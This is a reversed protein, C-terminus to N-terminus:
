KGSSLFDVVVTQVNGSTKDRAQVHIETHTIDCVLEIERDLGCGGMDVTVEGLKHVDKDTTSRVDKQFTAYVPFTATKQDKERASFTMVFVENTCIEEGRKVFAHFSNLKEDSEKFHPCHLVADFNGTGYTADAKRKLAISPDYHSVTVGLTVALEPEPPVPFQYTCGRFTTEILAELQNRLYECGGFGGVWYITDITSAIKNERLYSEILDMIGDIAPQFFEKMKSDTIRMVEGDDEVKVSVDGKSNLSIGKRVLSDEYLQVFSRPFKVIYSKCVEGSGFRRKQAEFTTYLLKNLDVKHRTQKETSSNEIYLSFEPDDVFDQLFKSFEENVTTGGWFNGAPPAIEEIRDGVIRHSAIDATGGGIDVVLYKKARVLYQSGKIAVKAEHQCHVAASEPELALM